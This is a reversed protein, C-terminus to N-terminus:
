HVAVFDRGTTRSTRIKNGLIVLCVTVAINVANVAIYSYFQSHQATSWDRIAGNRSFIVTV